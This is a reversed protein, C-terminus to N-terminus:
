DNKIIFNEQYTSKLMFLLFGRQQKNEQATRKRATEFNSSKLANSFAGLNIPQYTFTHCYNRYHDYLKKTTVFKLEWELAKIEKGERDITDEKPMIGLEDIWVEVPDKARLDNHQIRQIKDRLGTTTDFNSAQEHPTAGWIREYNLSNLIDWDLRDKCRIEWYRAASTYDVIIQNIPKNTSGIFSSKVDIHSHMNLGLIRPDLSEASIVAKLTEVNAKTARAMEDLVVVYFRGLLTRWERDDGIQKLDAVRAYSKIPSLLLRTATTKGGQTLGRLVPCIPSSVPLDFIKHKVGLIWHKMIEFSLDHGEICVAGVWTRLTQDGDKEANYEMVKIHQKLEDLSRAEADGIVCTLIASIKDKGLGGFRDADVYLRAILRDVPVAIRPKDKGAQMFFGSSRYDYIVSYESLLSHVYREARTQHESKLRM